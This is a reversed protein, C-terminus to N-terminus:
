ILGPLIILTLIQNGLTHHIQSGRLTCSEPHPFKRWSINRFLFIDSHTKYIDYLGQRTNNWASICDM